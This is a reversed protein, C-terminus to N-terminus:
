KKAKPDTKTSETDAPAQNGTPPEVQEVTLTPTPQLGMLAALLQNTTLNQQALQAETQASREANQKQLAKFKTVNEASVPNGNADHYGDGTADKYCGGPITESM